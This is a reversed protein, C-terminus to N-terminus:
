VHSPNAFPQLLYCLCDQRASELDGTYMGIHTGQKLVATSNELGLFVDSVDCGCADEAFLRGSRTLATGAPAPRFNFRQVAPDIVTTDTVLVRAISEFLALDKPDDQPALGSILLRKLFASARGTSASDGPMGVEVTVATCFDTFRRSLFGEPQATLLARPAFARAVSLTQRDTQTVVAYPPNDGTNNHVDVALYPQAAAAIATVEAAVAAEPTDGGEWVRNFDPGHPMRRAGIRAADVNGVFLMVSADAINPALQRVADWGSTENGHLLVSIFLPARDRKRLDFLAPGGLAGALATAPLDTISAPLARMIQLGLRARGTTTLAVM